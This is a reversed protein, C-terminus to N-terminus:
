KRRLLASFLVIVGAAILLLPWYQSIDWGLGFAGGFALFGIASIVMLVLGGTEFHPHDRSLLGALIVGIGVFGPILTWSYTWSLWNGSLNQYYLIGGIGAIIVGPVALGGTRTFLAALLFIAGVGIVIFPWSITGFVDPFYQTVLLFAGLLIILVGFVIGRRNDM